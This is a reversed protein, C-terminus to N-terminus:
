SHNPNVGNQERMARDSQTTFQQRQEPTWTTPNKPLQSVTTQLAQTEPQTKKGFAM